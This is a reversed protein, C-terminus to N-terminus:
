RRDYEGLPAERTTLGECERDFAEYEKAYRKRFELWQERSSWHDITVYRLPNERDSLLETAVYGPAARFLQAWSGDPGYHTEFEERRSEKVHFEWLIALDTTAMLAAQRRAM